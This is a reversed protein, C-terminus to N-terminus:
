SNIIAPLAPKHQCNQPDVPPTKDTEMCNVDTGDSIAAWSKPPTKEPLRILKLQRQRGGPRDQL